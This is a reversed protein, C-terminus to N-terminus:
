TDAQFGSLPDSWEATSNETDIENPKTALQSDIEKTISLEPTTTENPESQNSEDNKAKISSFLEEERTDPSKSPLLDIDPTDPVNSIFLDENTNSSGTSFLDVGHKEQTNSAVLDDSYINPAKSVSLNDNLTDPTNSVALVDSLTNSAKTEAPNDSSTDSTKSEVLDENFTNLTNSVALDESLTVSANTELLDGDGGCTDPTNSKLDTTVTFQDTENHANADPVAPDSENGSHRLATASLVDHKENTVQSVDSDNNSKNYHDFDAMVPIPTESEIEVESGGVVVIAAAGGDDNEKQLKLRAVGIHRDIDSFDVDDMDQGKLIERVKSIFYKM